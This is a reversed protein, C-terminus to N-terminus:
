GGKHWVHVYEEEDLLVMQGRANRVKWSRSILTWLNDYKAMSIYDQVFENLEM